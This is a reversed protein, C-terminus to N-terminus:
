DYEVCTIEDALNRFDKEDERVQIYLSLHDGFLDIWHLEKNTLPM